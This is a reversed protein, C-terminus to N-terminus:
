VWGAGEELILQRMGEIWLPHENLCPCRYLEEGGAHRFAETAEYGIEDITELCDATFGPMTVLVRKVGRRALKKLTEETYPKLWEERGFLSQFTQTWQSRPWGLRDVLAATTRKVHTAYPDGAQAYRIPLGHFSILYHNAPRSRKAEEDRIVQTMANLYAPHDYYPPVIRLAPV